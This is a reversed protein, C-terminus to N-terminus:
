EREARRREAAGTTSLHRSFWDGAYDAVMELAGPEEFLHGAGEVVTLRKEEVPLRDLVSRNAEILAEDKEGVLLLTPALVGEVAGEALEVRGGRSVVAGVLTPAEAAVILAAAAGTSAGLLGIDLEGIDPDHTVWDAVGMLRGALLAMNFRFERTRQDAVEEDPTLIDFLLTALGRRGLERAVERNRPSTRSSRSGHAFLVVGSPEKPVTLEGELTVRDLSVVIEHGKAGENGGQEM